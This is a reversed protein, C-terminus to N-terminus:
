KRKKLKNADDIAQNYKRIRLCFEDTMITHDIRHHGHTSLEILMSTFHEHTPKRVPVGASNKSGTIAEMQERKVALKLELSGMRASCNNLDAYYSEIDEYNFAFSTDFLENLEACFRPLKIRKLVPIITQLIHVDVELQIISKQLTLQHKHEITALLDNYEGQLMKWTVVLQHPDVPGIKPDHYIVLKDYAGDVICDIFINLPLKAISQYLITSPGVVKGLLSTPLPVGNETKTKQSRRLKM